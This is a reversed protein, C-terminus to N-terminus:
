KGGTGAGEVPGVAQRPDGGGVAAGGSICLFTPVKPKIGIEESAKLPGSMTYTGRSM